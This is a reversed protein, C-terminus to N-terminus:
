SLDVFPIFHVISAVTTECRVCAELGLRSVECMRMSLVLKNSLQAKSNWSMRVSLIWKKVYVQM